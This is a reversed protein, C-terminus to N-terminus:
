CFLSIITLSRFCLIHDEKIDSEFIQSITNVFLEKNWQMKSKQADSKGNGKSKSIM